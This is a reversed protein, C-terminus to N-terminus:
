NKMGTDGSSEVKDFHWGRRSANRQPKKSKLIIFNVSHEEDCM